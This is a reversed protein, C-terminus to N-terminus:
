RLVLFGPKGPFGIAIDKLGDGNHDGIVAMSAPPQGYFSGYYLDDASPPTIVTRRPTSGRPGGYVVTLHWSGTSAGTLLVVDSYGDGDIDGAAIRYTLDVSTGQSVTIRPIIPFTLNLRSTWNNGENGYFVSLTPAYDFFCSPGVCRPSSTYTAVAFDPIGDLDFDGAAGVALVNGIALTASPSPTTRDV